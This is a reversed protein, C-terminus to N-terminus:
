DVLTALVRDALSEKEQQDRRLENALAEDKSQVIQALIASDHAHLKRIQEKLYSCFLKHAEKFEQQTSMVEGKAQPQNTLVPEDIVLDDFDFFDKIDKEPARKRMNLTIQPLKILIGQSMGSYDLTYRFMNCLKSFLRSPSKTRYMKKLKYAQYRLCEKLRHSNFISISKGLNNKSFCPDVINITKLNMTKKFQLALDVKEVQGIPGQCFSLLKLAAYKEVLPALDDPTFLLEYDHGVLNHSKESLALKHLDFDFEERLRDYFGHLRVPGYITVIHRDWDFEGFVEFFTKLVEIESQFDCRKEYCNFIYIVLTYLAYTAMCSLQAGLLSVEHTFFCKLLFVTRKFLHKKAIRENINNMLDLTCLGGLKIFHSDLLGSVQGVSVDAMIGAFCVKIIPVDANEILQISEFTGVTLESEVLRRM